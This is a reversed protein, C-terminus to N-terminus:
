AAEDILIARVLDSLKDAATLTDETTTNRAQIAEALSLLTGRDEPYTSLPPPNVSVADRARMKAAALTEVTGLWARFKIEDEASVPPRAAHEAEVAALLAKLAETPTM